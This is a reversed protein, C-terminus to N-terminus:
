DEQFVERRKRRLNPLLMLLILGAALVLMTASIPRQLFTLPDGRSFLLARRLFEEMMPGLIFALLMPTPEADLKGRRGIQCVVRIGPSKTPASFQYRLLSKFGRCM